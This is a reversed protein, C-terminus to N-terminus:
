WLEPLEYRRWCPCSVKPAKNRLIPAYRGHLLTCLTLQGASPRLGPAKSGPM